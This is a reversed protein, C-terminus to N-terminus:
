RERAVVRRQGVTVEIDAIYLIDPHNLPISFRRTHLFEAAIQSFNQGVNMAKSTGHGPGMGSLDMLLLHIRISM